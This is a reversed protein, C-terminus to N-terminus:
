NGAGAAERAILGFGKDQAEKALEALRARAVASEGARKLGLEGLVLRVQLEYDVFGFKEAEAQAAALSQEADRIREPGGSATEVRAAAVALALRVGPNQSKSALYRATDIAKGAEAMKREALLARALAAEGYIQEDAQGERRIEGLARAILAEAQAAKGEELAVSALEIESEAATGQEGLERRISLAQEHWKRAEALSGEYLAVEGLGALAYASQSRTGLDHCIALADEFKRRAGKLDGQDALVLGINILEQATGGKDGVEGFKAGSEEYMRAATALQGESYFVNALNNLTNAAGREDGIERFSTLARDYMQRAGTFDSQDSLLLALNNLSAAVGGQDGMGRQIALAQQYQQKAAAAQGRSFLVEASAQLAEAFGGRDGTAAFTKRAEAIAKLAQDPEGLKWLATGQALRARAVLSRAGLAQGRDAARSAATQERKFDSLSEAWYAEALDIQPEDRAPPPLQRLSEITSLADRSRGALMEATALSIGYDLNDPFLGFLTRYVDVARDWENAVSRYRGEILLREQRSLGSSLDFAKKAEDRAKSDYGLASLASALASHALPFQSDEAVAKELLQRAGMANFLRLQALGDAYLKAVQPSSPLEARVGATESNPVDAVGLAERLRAGAHSVVDFLNAETGTEGFAAVTVGARADQLRLDLRIRGSGGAGLDTFSGLVVYDSGVNSRIRALTDSALSDADALPLDMKMRAITEGPIARLQEGAALESTLMESLATSLWAVDSRGTLNKLGLVAVSRRSASPSYAAATSNQRSRARNRLEYVGAAALGLIMLGAMLRVPTLAGLIGTRTDNEEEEIIVTSKTRERIILDPVEDWREKVTAVFRYGRRPITEIYAAGEPSQGLVKRLTSINQTLNNEEVVTDPWVRKMLDDKELIRGTSEVLTLLTEFAKPTISIPVGGRLLVKETADIRFAGFEYFHKSAQSNAPKM